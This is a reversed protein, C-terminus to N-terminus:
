IYGCASFWGASDSSSVYKMAEGLASDLADRTRAGAKRLLQKLKPWCQEIPNYEPSYPPLYM